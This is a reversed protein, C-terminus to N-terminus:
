TEHLKHVHSQGKPIKPPTTTSHLPASVKIITSWQPCIPLMSVLNITQDDHIIITRPHFPAAVWWFFWREKSTTGWFTFLLNGGLHTPPTAKTSRFTQRPCNLSLLPSYEGDTAESLSFYRGNPSFREVCFVPARLAPLPQTIHFIALNGHFIPGLSTWPTDGAVDSASVATPDTSATACVPHLQNPPYTHAGTIM